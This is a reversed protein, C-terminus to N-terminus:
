KRKTIIGQRALEPVLQGCVEVRVKEADNPDIPTTSGTWALRGGGGTGVVDIQFRADGERPPAFQTAAMYHTHYWGRWYEDAGSPATRAYDSDFSGTQTPALRHTVVVGDYHDRRVVVALQQSDPLSAPFLSYSPRALAGNAQFEATIADEWQRQLAPDRELSVVLLNGLPAAEPNRWLNTLSTKSCGTFWTAVLLALCVCFALNRVRM